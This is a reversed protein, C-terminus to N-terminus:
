SGMGWNFGHERMVDRVIKVSDGGIIEAIERESQSKIFDLSPFNKARLADAAAGDLRDYLVDIPTFVHPPKPPFQRDFERAEEDTLSEYIPDIHYKGSIGDLAGDYLEHM